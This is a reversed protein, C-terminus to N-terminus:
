FHILKTVALIMENDRLGEGKVSGWPVNGPECVWLRFNNQARFICTLRDFSIQRCNTTGEGEM